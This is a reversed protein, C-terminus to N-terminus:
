TGAGFLLSVFDEFKGDPSRAIESVSVTRVRVGSELVSALYAELGEMDPEQELSGLVFRVEVQKFDTQVVQVQTCPLFEHIRGGPAHVGPYIVRGDARVYANRYRGVIRALRPLRVLCNPHTSGAVAYDGIEYRIFPMAYNYLSTVIARGTEGPLCPGGHENLVEVLVSEASVHYAGCNPCESAIHGVEEAGYQDSIRAKLVSRCLQRAEDTITNSRGIIGQLRLKLGRERIRRCIPALLSSTLILYDPRRAVLWDILEDDNVTNDIVHHLGHPFGIRWGRFTKGHPPPAGATRPSAVSAMTRNGDFGWWRYARDMHCLGAVQMLESRKVSLPRGTSGSTSVTQVKGLHPPASSAVLATQNSQAEARSLIPIESWRSADFGKATFVPDLRKAYFPVSKRAHALLPELLQRQYAELQDAELQETAELVQRFKLAMQDLRDSM